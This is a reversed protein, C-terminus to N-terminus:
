TCWDLSLNPWLWYYRDWYEETPVGEKVHYCHAKHGYESPTDIDLAFTLYHQLMSCYETYPGIDHPHDNHLPMEAIMVYRPHTNAQMQEIDGNSIGRVMADRISSRLWNLFIRAIQQQSMYNPCDDKFIRRLKCMVLSAFDAGKMGPVQMIADLLNHPLKNPLLCINNSGGRMVIVKHKTTISFNTFRSVLDAAM